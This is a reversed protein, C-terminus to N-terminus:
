GFINAFHHFIAFFGFGVTLAAQVENEFAGGEEVPPADTSNAGPSPSDFSGLPSRFRFFLLFPSLCALRV